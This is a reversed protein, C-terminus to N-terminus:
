GVNACVAVAAFTGTAGGKNVGLASWGTGGYPYSYRLAADVNGTTGGGLAKKGAPCQAQSLGAQGPGLTAVNGQVIQYASVGPSGTDGTAGQAGPDGKDGKEGNEGQAGQPGAPLQGAKFDAAMLSGNMVKLGTVANRKLQVTGVSGKPLIMRAAEGLPTSGFVAVVLATTAVVMSLKHKSM